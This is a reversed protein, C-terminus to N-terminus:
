RKTGTDWGPALEDINGLFGIADTNGGVLVGDEWWITNVAGMKTEADDIHDLHPIVATKHTM